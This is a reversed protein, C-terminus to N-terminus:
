LLGAAQAVVLAALAAVIVTRVARARGDLRPWALTLLWALFLVVLGLLMPGWPVPALLGGLLVAATVLGLLAKPAKTLRVLLPYSFEELGARFGSRQSQPAPVPRRGAGSRPARSGAAPGAPRRNPTRRPHPRSSM